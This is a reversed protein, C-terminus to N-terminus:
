KHTGNLGVYHGYFHPKLNIIGTSTVVVHIETKCKPCIKKVEGNAELLLKNCQLCRVEQM